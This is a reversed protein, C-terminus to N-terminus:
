AEGTAQLWKARDIPDKPQYLGNSAVFAGKVDLWADSDDRALTVWTTEDTLRLRPGTVGSPLQTVHRGGSILRACFWVKSLHGDLSELVESRTIELQGCDEFESTLRRALLNSRPLSAIEKRFGDILNGNYELGTRWDMRFQARYGSRANFFFDSLSEGVHFQLV